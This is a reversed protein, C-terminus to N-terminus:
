AGPKPATEDVVGTDLYNAYAKLGHRVDSETKYPGIRDSWTEDWFWFGDKDEFLPCADDGPTLKRAAQDTM